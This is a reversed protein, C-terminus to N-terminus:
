LTISEKLLRGKTNFYLYKKQLENKEVKIRYQEKDGPLYIIATEKVTWEDDAYKSKDFGDKVAQSLKDFSWEKETEKWLGKNSYTAILKEGTLTFYVYVKVLQDKYDVDTAQPYQSMFRDKVEKPIERLQASASLTFVTLLVILSAFFKKAM